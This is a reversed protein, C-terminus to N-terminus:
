REVDYVVLASYPATRRIMVTPVAPSASTPQALTRANDGSPRPERAFVVKTASIRPAPAYIFGCRTKPRSKRRLLAAAFGAGDFVSASFARSSSRVMWAPM